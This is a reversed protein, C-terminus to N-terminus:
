RKKKSYYKEIHGIQTNGNGNQTFNFVFPNNVNQQLVQAQPDDQDVEPDITSDDVGPYSSVKDGQNLKSDEGASINPITSDYYSLQINKESNEGIAATYLREAGSRSPCWSNYTDAGVKNDNMCTLVYHWVGLLFSQLCIISANVIEAKTMTSGDECIFFAQNGDIDEDAAIVEVLAKVLYEDKKTSTKIDLYKEAFRNIPTLVSQYDNKVRDDFSKRVAPDNFRFFKGGWNICAKFDRTNDRITKEESRMPTPIDPTVVRALALLTEPESLGSSQGAYNQGKSLLQKRTYSILTFFTGGCLKYYGNKIM